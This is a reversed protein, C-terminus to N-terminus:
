DPPLLSKLITAFLIEPHVPKSIFDNMGAEMCRAKDESFANATMALIPLKATGPLLRIRRTAELGDLVPMQMDMLVLDYAHCSVRDVAELGNEAVDVLLGVDKLLELTVECNVPEDEVLLVHRGACTQRLRQEAHEGPAPSAVAPRAHGGKKLRATFWFTSGVGPTSSVGVEGGMCEAFKRTIALGLGTGGYSRTISNDAQEFASFLKPIIEPAIGIGTDEVEFRLVVSKELEQERRVRLTVSGAHTFKVANAAYNLLAQQLRSADGSLACSLPQIDVVFRLNRAQVSEFLISAVNAAITEIHLDIEELVFKGADIKSLDLIANIIELLHRGATELKDLQTAQTESVGARRILHAMGNIANLPTRIEHSMNAIFASKAVNAGEAAAKALQLEGNSAQLEATRETIRQELHRQYHELEGALRKRESIDEKIAVYQTIQGDQQRIPTVVAFETYESGDKRRNRFEGKWIEGRSITECLEVHIERPTHGSHLIRPNRGLVEERCYGTTAVFAANVYEINGQLDTIVISVPSQEVAQSLKLVQAEALKRESIYILVVRVSQGSEDALMKIHVFLQRAPLTPTILTVEGTERSQSLFATQLMEHLFAQSEPAVFDSFRRGVLHPCDAALLRAAALNAQHISGDRGFTLYGIPAFDYLNAYLARAQEAENHALLLAENQMELEVQHVRLEHLLRRTDAESSVVESTGLGELMRSEAAQRLAAADMPITKDAM